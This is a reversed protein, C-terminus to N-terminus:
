KFKYIDIEGLLLGALDTNLLQEKDPNLQM